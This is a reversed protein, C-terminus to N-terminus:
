CVSNVYEKIKENIEDYTIQNEDIWDIVKTVQYKILEHKPLNMKTLQNFVYNDTLTWINDHLCDKLARLAAEEIVKKLSFDESWEEEKAVENIYGELLYTNAYVKLIYKNISKKADIIFHEMIKGTRHIMMSDFMDEILEQPLLGENFYKKM